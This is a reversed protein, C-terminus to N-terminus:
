KLYDVVLKRSNFVHPGNSDQPFTFTSPLLAPSVEVRYYDVGNIHKVRWGEPLKPDTTQLPCLPPLLPPCNLLVFFSFSSTSSVLFCFSFSFVGRVETIDHNDYRQRIFLLYNWDVDFHKIFRFFSPILLFLFHPLLRLLLFLFFM